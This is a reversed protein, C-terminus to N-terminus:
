VLINDYMFLTYRIPQDDKVFFCNESALLVTDILDFIRVDNVEVLKLTITDKIKENNLPKDFINIAINPKHVYIPYRNILCCSSMSLLLILIILISVRM